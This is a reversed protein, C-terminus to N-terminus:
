AMLTVTREMKKPTILMVNWKKKEKRAFLDDNSLYNSEGKGRNKEEKRKEFNVRIDNMKQKLHNFIAKSRRKRRVLVFIQITWRIDFKM